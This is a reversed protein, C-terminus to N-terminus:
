CTFCKLLSSANVDHLEHQSKVLRLVVFVVVIGVIAFFVDVIAVFGVILFLVIIGCQSSVNRTRTKREQSFLGHVDMIWRLM